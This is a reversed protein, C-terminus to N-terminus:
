GFRALRHNLKRHGFQHQVAESLLKKLVSESRRFIIM